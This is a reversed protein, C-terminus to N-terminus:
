KKNLRLYNEALKFDEITDIDVSRDVPMEFPLTRDSIFGKNIFYDNIRSIYIAGNLAYIDELEQRRKSFYEKSFLPLLFGNGSLKFTWFPVDEIKYVSVCSTANKSQFFNFAMDIDKSNRIPSTPQLM